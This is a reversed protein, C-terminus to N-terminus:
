GATESLGLKWPAVGSACTPGPSDRVRAKAEHSEVQVSTAGSEFRAILVCSGSHAVFLVHAVEIHQLRLLPGSESPSSKLLAIDVSDVSPASCFWTVHPPRRCSKVM